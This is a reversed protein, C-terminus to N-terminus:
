KQVTVIETSKRKERKEELNVKRRDECRRQDIRPSGPFLIQRATIKEWTQGLHFGRRKRLFCSWLGHYLFFLIGGSDGPVKAKKKARELFQRQHNLSPLLTAKTGVSFLYVNGETTTLEGSRPLNTAASSSSLNM